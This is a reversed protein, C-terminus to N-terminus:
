SRATGTAARIAEEDWMASSVADKRAARPIWGRQYRKLLAETTCGALRAASGTDIWNRVSTIEQSDRDPINAAQHTRRRQVEAWHNYAVRAPSRDVKSGAKGRCAYDLAKIGDAIVQPNAPVGWMGSGSADIALVGGLLQHRRGCVWPEACGKRYERISIIDGDLMACWTRGISNFDVEFKALPKKM